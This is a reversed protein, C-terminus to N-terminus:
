ANERDDTTTTRAVTRRCPQPTRPSTMSRAADTGWLLVLISISILLGIVPDALPFGLMVGVASLVM